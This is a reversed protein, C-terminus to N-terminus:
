KLRLTAHAFLSNVLSIHIGQGSGLTVILKNPPAVFVPWLSTLRFISVPRGFLDLDDVQPMNDVKIVLLSQPLKLGHM